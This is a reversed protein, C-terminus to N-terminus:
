PESRETQSAASAPMPLAAGARASFERIRTAVDEADRYGIDRLAEADGASLRAPAAVIAAYALKSVPRLPDVHFVMVQWRTTVTVAGDDAHREIWEGLGYRIRGFGVACAAAAHEAEHAIQAELYDLDIQGQCRDNLAHMLVRLEEPTGAPTVNEVEAFGRAWYGDIVFNDPRDRLRGHLSVRDRRRDVFPETM